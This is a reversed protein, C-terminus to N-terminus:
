TRNGGFSWKVARLLNIEQNFEFAKITKLVGCFNYLLVQYSPTSITKFEFTRRNKEKQIREYNIDLKFLLFFFFM